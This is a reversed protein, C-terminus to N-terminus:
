SPGNKRSADVEGAESAARFVLYFETVSFVTYVVLGPFVTGSNLIGLTIQSWILCSFFALVARAHGQRLWVGNITLVFLRGGGVLACIVAWTEESATQSLAQVSPMAFTEYPMALTIGWGLMIVGLMWESLRFRLSDNIRTIRTVIM